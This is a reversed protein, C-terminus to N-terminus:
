RVLHSGNLGSSPRLSSSGLGCFLAMGGLISNFGIKAFVSKFLYIHRKAKNQCKDMSWGSLRKYNMLSFLARFLQKLTGTEVEFLLRGEGRGEGYIRVSPPM